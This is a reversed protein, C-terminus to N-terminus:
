GMNDLICDDAPHIEVIPKPVDRTESQAGIRFDTGYRRQYVAAKRLRKQENEKAVKYAESQESLERNQEPTPHSSGLTVPASGQLLAGAVGSGDDIVGAKHKARPDDLEEKLPHDEPAM